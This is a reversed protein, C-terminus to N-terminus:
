PAGGASRMRGALRAAWAKMAAEADRQAGNTDLRIVDVGRDTLREAMVAACHRCQELRRMRESPALADLEFPRTYPKKGRTAMRDECAGPDADMWFVVDPRPILDAYAQIESAPTADPVYGYLTIARHTNGEDMVFTEEPGLHRMALESEAFNKFFAGLIVQRNRTPMDRASLARCVHAVLGVNAGAFAQLEPLAFDSGMFREWVFPPLRKLANKFLGDNRRRLCRRVAAQRDLANLALRRCAAVFVECLTTKGSGPLGYFEIHMKM